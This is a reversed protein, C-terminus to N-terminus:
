DQAPHPLRVSVNKVQSKAYADFHSVARDSWGLVDGLYGARWGALPMRWGICGHLWTKGDWDGDAAVALAGGLTNVYPDPTDFVIRGALQRM